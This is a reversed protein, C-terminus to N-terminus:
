LLKKLQFQQETFSKYRKITKFVTEEKEIESKVEDQLILSIEKRLYFLPNRLIERQPIVLLTNEIWEGFDLLDMNELESSTPLYKALTTGSEVETADPTTKKDHNEM